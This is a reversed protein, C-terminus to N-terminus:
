ILSGDPKPCCGSGGKAGYRRHSAHNSRATPLCVCQARLWMCVACVACVGVCGRCACACVSGCVHVSKPRLYPICRSPESSDFVNITLGGRGEVAGRGGVKRGQADCWGLRFAAVCWGLLCVLLCVFLCFVFSGVFLSVLLCVFLSVVLSVLLCVVLCVFMCRFSYILLCALLCVFFCVVWAACRTPRM